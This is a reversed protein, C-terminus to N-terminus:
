DKINMLLVSASASAGISQGGAEFLQSVPFSGSAPFSQSGGPEGMGPIRWALVSSHNGNGEGPSRGSVPISGPDGANCTSEKGVSSCPFSRIVIQLSDFSENSFVRISPFISPLLLLPRCLILHNSPILSEISMLKLLSRSNTISLSAQRAVTWPTM